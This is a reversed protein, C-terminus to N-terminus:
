VNISWKKRTVRGIKLRAKKTRSKRINTLYIFDKIHYMLKQAVYIDTELEKFSPNESLIRGQTKFFNLLYDSIAQRNLTSGVFTEVYRDIIQRTTLHHYYSRPQIYYLRETDMGYYYTNDIFCIETNTPLLTCSIFDSHLKRQKTRKPEIVENNIKFACIVKDFLPEDVLLKYNFYQTINNIWDPHSCQNNTYIYCRVLTSRKKLLYVVIPLIGYRLFEPYLDLIDNFHPVTLTPGYSHLANWLINLDTFSGLTEDLDFVIAKQVRKYKPRTYYKGKYIDVYDNSENLSDFSDYSSFDSFYDM